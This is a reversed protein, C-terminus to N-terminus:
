SSFLEKQLKPSLERAATTSIINLELSKLVVFAEMLSDRFRYKFQKRRGIKDLVRGRNEKCFEDLHYAFAPVDYSEGTILSLRESVSKATFRGLDDRAALACALLVQKFINKQRESTTARDFGDRLTQDVEQLADRMAEDIDKDEIKLHHRRIAELSAHLGLLHGYYPLGKSIFIIRWLADSTITMGVRSLRTVVLDRMEDDSMRPMEIQVLARNISEHGLILDGVSDAVGVCILKAAVTEDALAKITDALLKKTQVDKIRDLEDLIILSLSNVHFKSM